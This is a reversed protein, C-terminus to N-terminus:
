CLPNQLNQKPVYDSPFQIGSQATQDPRLSEFGRGEAGLASASGPQAVGRRGRKSQIAFRNARSGMGARSSPRSGALRHAVGGAGIPIAFILALAAALLFCFPGTRALTAARSAWTAASCATTAATPKGPSTSSTASSPFPAWWCASASIPPWACWRSTPVGRIWAALPIILSLLGGARRGPRPVLGIIGDIGFRIGTGPIRLGRRAPDRPWATHPRPLAVRRSELSGPRANGVPRFPAEAPPIRQIQNPSTCASM